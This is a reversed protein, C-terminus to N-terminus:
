PQWGAAAAFPPATAAEPTPEVVEVRSARCGSAATQRPPSPSSARASVSCLHPAEAACGSGPRWTSSPRPPARHRRASCGTDHQAPM